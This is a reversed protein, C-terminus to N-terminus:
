FNQSATDNLLVLTRCYGDAGWGVTFQGRVGQILGLNADALRAPDFVCGSHLGKWTANFFSVGTIYSTEFSVAATADSSLNRFGSMTGRCGGSGDPNSWCFPTIEPTKDGARGVAPALLTAVLITTRLFTRM